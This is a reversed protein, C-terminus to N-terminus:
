LMSVEKAPEGTGYAEVLPREVLLPVLLRLYRQALTSSENWFDRLDRDPSNGVACLGEGQTRLRDTQQWRNLDTPLPGTSQVIQGLSKGRVYEMTYWQLGARGGIDFSQACELRRREVVDIM